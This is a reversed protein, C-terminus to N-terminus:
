CLASFNASMLNRSNHLSRLSQHKEPPHHHIINFIHSYKWLNNFHNTTRIHESFKCILSLWKGHTECIVWVVDVPWRHMLWYANLVVATFLHISEQNLERSHALTAMFLCRWVLIDVSITIFRWKDALFYILFVFSRNAMWMSFFDM